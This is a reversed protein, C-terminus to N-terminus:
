SSRRDPDDYRVDAKGTEPLGAERPDFRDTPPAEDRLEAVLATIADMIRATAEKLVEGTQERGMLDSLDVPPGITVTVTQPPFVHPKKGYPALVRQAGWHAMPIVPCGTALAIRAAGTKGRMPWLAPDRTITGEPYCVVCEGAKVAAVADRMADAAAGTERHVPIQGARAVIPGAVPVDFLSDKALFRPARGNDYLYHGVAM